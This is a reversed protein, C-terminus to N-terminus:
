SKKSNAGTEKRPKDIQMTDNNELNNEIAQAIGKKTEHVNHRTSKEGTKM